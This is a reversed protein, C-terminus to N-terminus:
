LFRVFCEVIKKFFLRVFKLSHFSVSEFVSYNLGLDLFSLLDPM